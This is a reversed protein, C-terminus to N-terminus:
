MIELDEMTNPPEEDSATNTRQEPPVQDVNNSGDYPDQKQQQQQEKQQRARRNIVGLIVIAAAVIVGVVIGIVTGVSNGAGGTSGQTSSTAAVSSPQKPSSVPPPGLPIPALATPSPIPMATGTPAVFRTAEQCACVNRVLSPLQACDDSPIMGQRGATELTYCSVEPQGPYAFIEDPKTVCHRSGCISCGTTTAPIEFCVVEQPTVTPPPTPTAGTTEESTAPPITVLSSSTDDCVLHAADTAANGVNCDYLKCAGDAASRFGREASSSLTMDPCTEYTARLTRFAKTCVATNCNDECGDGLMTGFAVNGSEDTCNAKRCSSLTPDTKRFIQCRTCVNEYVHLGTTLSEPVETSFCYDHHAQIIYFSTQCIVSSCDDKCSNSGLNSLAQTMAAEDSCDISDGSEKLACACSLTTDEGAASAFM